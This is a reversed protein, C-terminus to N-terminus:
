KLGFKGQLSGSNTNFTYVYVGQRELCIRESSLKNIKRSVVLAGKLDYIVLEGDVDMENIVEVM